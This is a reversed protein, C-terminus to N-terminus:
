KIVLILILLLMTVIASAIQWRMMVMQRNEIRKLAPVVFLSVNSSVLEVDKHM